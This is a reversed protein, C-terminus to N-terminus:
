EDDDGGFDLEALTDSALETLTQKMREVVSGLGTDVVFALANAMVAMANPVPMPVAGRSWSGAVLERGIRRLEGAVYHVAAPRSLKKGRAM